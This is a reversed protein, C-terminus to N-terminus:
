MPYLSHSIAQETPGLLCLISLLGTKVKLEMVEEMDSPIIMNESINEFEKCLRHPSFCEKLDRTCASLPQHLDWLWCIVLLQGIDPLAAASSLSQISVVSKNNIDQHDQLIQATLMQQLDRTREVLSNVLKHSHVAFMGFQVVQLCFYRILMLVTKDSTVVLAISHNCCM